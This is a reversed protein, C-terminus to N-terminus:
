CDDPLIEDTKFFNMLNEPISAVKKMFEDFKLWEKVNKKDCEALKGM